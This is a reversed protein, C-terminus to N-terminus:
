ARISATKSHHRALTSGSETRTSCINISQKKQLASKSLENGQLPISDSQLTPNQSNGSSTEAMAPSSEHTAIVFETSNTKQHTSKPQM